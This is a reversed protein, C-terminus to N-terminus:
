TEISDGSSEVDARPRGLMREAEELGGQLDGVTKMMGLDVGLDVLTQAIRSSLGTIVASAGMLRAAEVAQVLHNAVTRDVSAVGTIDIVVV